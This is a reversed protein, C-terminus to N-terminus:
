NSLKLELEQSNNKDFKVNPILKLLAAVNEQCKPCIDRQKSIIKIDTFSAIKVGYKGFAYHKEEELSPMVFEPTHKCEEGCYDCYYTDIQKTKKM